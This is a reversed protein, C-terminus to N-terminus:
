QQSPALRAALRPGAREVLDRVETVMEEYGRRPGGYPDAVDFNYGAVNSFLVIREALTPFEARLAECHSRTMCLVVDAAAVLDGEVRQAKHASLDLGREALVERSYTAAPAGPEAWTGASRVQWGGPQEPGPLGTGKVWDGLLAEAVPSRCINATCVFLITPM